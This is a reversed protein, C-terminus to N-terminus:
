DDSGDDRDPGNGASGPQRCVTRYRNATGAPIISGLGVVLSRGIHGVRRLKFSLYEGGGGGGGVLRREFRHAYRREAFAPRDGRQQLREPRQRRLLALDLPRRDVPELVTDVRRKGRTPL